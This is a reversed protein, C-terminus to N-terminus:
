KGFYAKTQSQFLTRIIAVEAILAIFSSFANGQGLFAFGFLPLFVVLGGFYTRPLSPSVLVLVAGIIGLLTLVLTGTWAWTKGKWMGWGMMINIAGLLLLVSYIPANSSTREYGMGINWLMVFGIFGTLVGGLLELVALVKVGIPRKGKSM